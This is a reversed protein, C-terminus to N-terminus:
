NENGNNIVHDLFNNLRYYDSVVEEFDLPLGNANYLTYDVLMKRLSMSLKVPSRTKILTNLSDNVSTFFGRDENEKVSEIVTETTHHSAIENKFILWCCILVKVLSKYVKKIKVQEEAHENSCLSLNLMEYLQDQLKYLSLEKYLIEFVLYPDVIEDPKLYAALKTDSLVKGKLKHKGSLGISKSFKVDTKYVVWTANLLQSILKYRYLVDAIDRNFSKLSIANKYIRRLLLLHDEISAADFFNSIIEYPNTSEGYIPNKQLAKKFYGKYVSQLNEM